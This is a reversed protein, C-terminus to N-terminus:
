FAKKWWMVVTNVKKPWAILLITFLIKVLIHDLVSVLSIMLVFHNTSIVALLMNKTNTLVLIKPIKRENDEPVLISKFKVYIMLPLKAKRKFNKFTVYECKKPM